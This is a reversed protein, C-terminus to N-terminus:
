ALRSNVISSYDFFPSTRDVQVYADGKDYKRIGYNYTLELVTNKEESGYGM